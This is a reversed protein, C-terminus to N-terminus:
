RRPRSGFVVAVIGFAFRTVLVAAYSFSDPPMASLFLLGAWVVGLVIKGWTKAPAFRALLTGIVVGAAVPAFWQMFPSM